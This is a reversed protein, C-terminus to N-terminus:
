NDFHQLQIIIQLSCEVILIYIMSMRNTLYEAQHFKKLHTLLLAFCISLIIIPLIESPFLYDLAISGKDIKWTDDKVEFVTGTVKLGLLVLTILLFGFVLLKENRIFVRTDLQYIIEGLSKYNQVRIVFFMLCWELSQALIIIMSLIM